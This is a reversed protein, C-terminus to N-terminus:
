KKDAEFHILLFLALPGQRRQFEVIEALVGVAAIGVVLNSGGGVVLAVLHL